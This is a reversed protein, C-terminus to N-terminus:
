PDDRIEWRDGPELTGVCWASMGGQCVIAMLAPQGTTGLHAALWGFLAIDKTSPACSCGDPHSHWEGIYELQGGTRSVMDALQGALGECGRIYLDPCERSDPPSPLTEVVYIIRRLFDYTGLLVGGTENPLKVARQQRLRTLLHDDVVLTWDGIRHRRVVSVPIRHTTVALTNPDARWVQIGPDDSQRVQRIAHAGIAAHLGVLHVPLIASVDRCSRAYRVRGAAPALHGTLAAETAAARYYQMELGDLPFTRAADEVLLVLDTGQPNLFLALRRAGSTADLALHRSVPVSAAMDLIIEAGALAQELQDRQDGPAQVDAHIPQTGSDDQYFQNLQVAMAVAKSHGVFFPALAHRSLNHPLLDDEDVLTWRGFGSRVLTQVVQSGLAGVGVAM